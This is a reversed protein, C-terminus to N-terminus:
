DPFRSRAERMAESLVAVFLAVNAVEIDRMLQQVKPLTASCMEQLERNASRQRDTLSASNTSEASALASLPLSTTEFKLVAARMPAVNSRIANCMTRNMDNTAHELVSACATSFTKVIAGVREEHNRSAIHLDSECAQQADVLTDTRRIFAGATEAIRELMAACKQIDDWVKHKRVQLGRRDRLVISQSHAAEQLELRAREETLSRLTAEASQLMSELRATKAACKRSEDVSAQLVRIRKRVSDLRAGDYEPALAVGAVGAVDGETADDELNSDVMVISRAELAFSQISRLHGRLMETFQLAGDVDEDMEPMGSIRTISLRALSEEFGLEHLASASITHIDTVHGHLSAVIGHLRRVSTLIVKSRGAPIVASEEEKLKLAASALARDRDEKAQALGAHAQREWAQVASLADRTVLTVGDAVARSTREADLLVSSAVNRTLSGWSSTDTCTPLLSRVDGCVGDLRPWLHQAAVAIPASRVVSWEAADRAEPNVAATVPNHSVRMCALSVSSALACLEEPAVCVHIHVDEEGALASASAPEASAPAPRALEAPAPQKEEEAATARVKFLTADLDDMSRIVRRRSAM